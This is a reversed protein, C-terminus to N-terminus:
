APWAKRLAEVAHGPEGSNWLARILALGDLRPHRLEAANAPTIGGLALLRGRFPPLADLRRHLGEAGFADGKGPVPFVPSLLLQAAGLRGAAQAPDHLPRSLRVLDSPLEPYAEPAHLGCDAALAVDLRGNVWLEVDPAEARCWRALELLARAELAKERIMLADVGSHLVARWRERDFGEGPSIALLHM